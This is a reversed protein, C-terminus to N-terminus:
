SKILGRFFQIGGFIIAGYAIIGGKGSAVSIVTVILGGALWLGGYLVDNGANKKEFQEIQAVRERQLKQKYIREEDSKELFMTKSSSYEHYDKVGQSEFFKSELESITQGKHASFESIAKQLQDSIPINRKKLESLARIITEDNYNNWHTLVESLGANKTHSIELLTKNM